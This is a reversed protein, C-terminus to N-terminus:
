NGLPLTFWFTSGDKPKSRVGIKGGHATIIQRCLYLGIGLGPMLRANEGRTYLEFIRECQKKSMGVGNDQVYFLITKAKVKADLTLTIGYINHKLANFMLNHFVRRLQVPDAKVTPLDYRIKNNLIVRNQRIFSELDAIVAEIFTSIQLSEYHLKTRGTEYAYAEQLASILDLQSSNSELLRKIADRSVTVQHDSKQLLNQLVIATAMLPSRLDHTIAHLFVRLEQRSAFEVRQLREYMYVGANCVLCFWFIMLFWGLSVLPHGEIPKCDLASNVAVYYGVVTLQSGLHLRWGVPILTAQILFMLRWMDANGMAFGNFTAFIEPVLTACLSMSLFIASPFRHGWKTKHIILFTLLLPAIFANTILSATLWKVAILKIEPLIETAQPLHFWHYLDNVTACLWLPIAGWLCFGLRKWMFEDRWLRYEASESPFILQQLRILWDFSAKRRFLSKFM